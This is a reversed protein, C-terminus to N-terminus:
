EKRGIYFMEEGAKKTFANVIEEISQYGYSKLALWYGRNGGSGINL